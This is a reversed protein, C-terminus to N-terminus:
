LLIQCLCSKFAGSFATDGLFAELLPTPCAKDQSWSSGVRVARHRAWGPGLLRAPQAPSFRSEPPVPSSELSIGWGGVGWFGGRLLTVARDSAELLFLRQHHLSFEGECNLSHFCLSAAPFPNRFEARLSRTNAHLPQPTGHSPINSRHPAPLCACWSQNAASLISVGPGVVDGKGV